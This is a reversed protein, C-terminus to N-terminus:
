CFFYFFRLTSTIVYVLTKRGNAIVHQRSQTPPAESCKGRAVFKSNQLVKDSSTSGRKRLVAENHAPKEGQYERQQKMKSKNRLVVCTVDALM